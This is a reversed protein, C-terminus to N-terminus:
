DAITLGCVNEWITDRVDKRPIIEEALLRAQEKEYNVMNRFTQYEFEPVGKLEEREQRIRLVDADEVTEQM